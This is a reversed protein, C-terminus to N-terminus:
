ASIPVFMSLYADCFSGNLLLAARMWRGGIGWLIGDLGQGQGQCDRRRSRGMGESQRKKRSWSLGTRPCARINGAHGHKQSSLIRYEPHTQLHSQVFRERPYSSDLFSLLYCFPQELLRNRRLPNRHTSTRPSSAMWCVGPHRFFSLMLKTEPIRKQSHDLLNQIIEWSLSSEIPWVM